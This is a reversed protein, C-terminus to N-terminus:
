RTPTPSGAEPTHGPPKINRGSSRRASEGRIGSAVYTVFICLNGWECMQGKLRMNMKTVM